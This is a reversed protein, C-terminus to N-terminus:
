AHLSEVKESAHAAPMQAPRPPPTPSVHPAPTPAPLLDLRTLIDTVAQQARRSSRSAAGSDWTLRADGPAVGDQTAIAVRRALDPPLTSLAQRVEDLLAPSVTVCLASDPTMASIVDRVVGAIEAPDHRACLSPLMAALAAFLLRAAAEASQEALKQADQRARTLLGALSECAQAAAARLHHAAEASATRHGAEHGERRAAEVDAATFAPAIIEPEPPAADDAAYSAPHADFADDFDEAFLIGSSPHWHPAAYPQTM